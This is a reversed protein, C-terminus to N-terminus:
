AGEEPGANNHASDDGIVDQGDGERDFPRVCDDCDDGPDGNSLVQVEKDNVGEHSSNFSIASSAGRLIFSKLISIRLTLVFLRM